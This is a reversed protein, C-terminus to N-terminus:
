KVPVHVSEVHFDGETHGSIQLLLLALCTGEWSAISRPHINMENTGKLPM